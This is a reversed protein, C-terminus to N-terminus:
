ISIGYRSFTEHKKEANFQKVMDGILFADIITWLGLGGLTFMMGLASGTKGLYFRHGGLGGLFFWLALATGFSKKEDDYASQAQMQLVLKDNSNPAAVDNMTIM